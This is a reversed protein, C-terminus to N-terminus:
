GYVVWLSSPPTCIDRSGDGLFTQPLYGGTGLGSVSTNSFTVSGSTMRSEVAYTGAGIIQNNNFTVNTISNNGIFHIAEYNNDIFGNDDVHITAAMPAELSYFWLAGTGFNWSNYYDESGARVITNRLINVTGSVPASTSRKGGAIGGGATLPAAVSNDTRHTNKGGYIAIGNALVPMEVRNFSFTNNVDNVSHTWMALGDDGTNRIISQTVSSNTVAQHFNIGDATTDRIILHSMALNTFPGDLWAGVKTHEIWVHDISSNSFGGGFGNMADGDDRQQVEGQIAFDSVHVNSSPFGGFLGSSNGSPNVFHLTSYWMGAGQITVNNPIHIQTALKYTGEPIWLVKAQASAANVATQMATTADALGTPDAGYDATLSLSGAPQSLAADVQEFDILDITYSPATDGADVQVRVTSGASMQGVLRHVEDYFHHGRIDAPNNNLPYSAYYCGYKSTLTLDTQQVGDIYLSLPATLGLGVLSAPFSYRLFMSNADQPITFEVYQGPADLTVAQRGIAEAALSPYFRDPGIITGNTVADEAQVEVYPLTAGSAAPAAFVSNPSKSLGVALISISILSAFFILNAQRLYMKVNKMFLVLREENRFDGAHPTIWHILIYM